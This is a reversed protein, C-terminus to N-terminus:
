PGVPRLPEEGPVAGTLLETSGFDDFLVTLQRGEAALAVGEGYQADGARSAPEFARGVPPGRSRLGAVANTTQAFDRRQHAIDEPRLAFAM